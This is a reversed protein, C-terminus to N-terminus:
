VAWQCLLKLIVPHDSMGLASLGLLPSILQLGANQLKTAVGAAVMGSGRWPGWQISGAPLGKM